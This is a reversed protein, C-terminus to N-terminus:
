IWDEGNWTKNIKEKMVFALWLQEMSTFYDEKLKYKMLEWGVVDNVFDYFNCVKEYVDGDVMEQLQDQRPLWIANYIHTPYHWFTYVDVKEDLFYYDGDQWQQDHKTGHPKLDAKECMKIYTESTDM